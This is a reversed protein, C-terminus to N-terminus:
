KYNNLKNTTEDNYTTQILIATSSSGQKVLEM